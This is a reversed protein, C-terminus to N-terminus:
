YIVSSHSARCMPADKSDSNGSLLEGNVAVSSPMFKLVENVRSGNVFGGFVVFSGNSCDSLAHDDRPLLNSAADALHITQWSGSTANFIFIEPNSDEGKLGGYFLVEKTGMVFATHHSIAGPGRGSTDVQEWEVRHYPDQFLQQIGTLNVKWMTSISGEKLDRGGHVYLYEGDKM